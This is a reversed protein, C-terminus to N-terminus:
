KQAKALRANSVGIQPMERRIFENYRLDEGPAPAGSIDPWRIIDTATGAFLLCAAM